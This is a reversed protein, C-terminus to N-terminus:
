NRRFTKNFLKKFFLMIKKARYADRIKKEEKNMM